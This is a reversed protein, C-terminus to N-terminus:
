ANKKLKCYFCLKYLDFFFLSPNKSKLNKIFTKEFGRCIFMFLTTAGMTKLQKYKIQLARSSLDIKNDKELTYTTQIAGLSKELFIATSELGLHITPNEIHQVKAKLERIKYSFYIDLGYHNTEFNNAKLFVEKTILLNASIINYPKKNRAKASKSERTKGYVWRLLQNQTPRQTEYVIGGSIVDYKNNLEKVYTEIYDHNLPIVDADLFLLWNFKAKHALINRTATRGLNKESEIYTCHELTNIKNNEISSQTDSSADDLVIIEFSIKSKIAQQQLTKVLLLTNYNYTPILISLM